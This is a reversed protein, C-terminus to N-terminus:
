RTKQEGPHEKVEASCLVSEVEKVLEPPTAAAKCGRCVIPDEPTKSRVCSLHVAAECSTWTELAGARGRTACSARDDEFKVPVRRQITNWVDLEPESARSSTQWIEGHGNWHLQM